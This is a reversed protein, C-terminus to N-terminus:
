LPKGKIQATRLSDAQTAIPVNFNPASNELARLTKQTATLNPKKKAPKRERPAKSRPAYLVDFPGGMSRPKGDPWTLVFRSM